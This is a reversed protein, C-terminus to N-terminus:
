EPWWDLMGLGFDNVTAQCWQADRVNLRSWLYVGATLRM